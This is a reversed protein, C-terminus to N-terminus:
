SVKWNKTFLIGMVPFSIIEWLATSVYFDIPWTMSTIMVYLSPTTIIILLLAGFMLGKRMPTGKQCEKVVDFLIAAACAVAFLYFFSLIIVPDDASRMGGYNCIDASIVLNVTM